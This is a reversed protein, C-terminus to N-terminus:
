RIRLHEALYSRFAASSVFEMFSEATRGTKLPVAVYPTEVNLARGDRDDPIDVCRVASLENPAPECVYEYILAADLEGTSVLMVLDDASAAETAVLGKRTFGGGFVQGANKLLADAMTGCPATAVCVGVKWGDAVLRPLDALSVDGERRASVLLTARVSGLRVPQGATLGASELQGVAKDGAAVFVDAPSGEQVQAALATSSGGTVKWEAACPNVSTDLIASRISSAVLATVPRCDGSATKDSGCAALLPVMLIGVLFTRRM